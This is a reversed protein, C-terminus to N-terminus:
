RRYEIFIRTATERTIFFPNQPDSMFEYVRERQWAFDTEKPDAVVFAAFEGDTSRQVWAVSDVTLRLPHRKITARMRAEIKANTDM